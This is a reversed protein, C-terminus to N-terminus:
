SLQGHGCTPWFVARQTLQFFGVVVDVQFFFSANCRECQTPIWIKTWFIMEDSKFKNFKKSRWIYSINSNEQRFNCKSCPFNSPKSWNLRSFEFIQSKKGGFIILKPVLIWISTQNIKKMLNFKQVCFLAKVCQALVASAAVIYAENGLSSM